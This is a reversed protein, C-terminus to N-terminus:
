QYIYKIIEKPVLGTIAQNNEIKYRIDSSSTNIEDQTLLYLLGFKNNKLDAINTTKTFNQLLMNDIDNNPRNVIVLHCFKDFENHRKWTNITNFSDVGILLCISHNLYDKRISILSDITYTTKNQKIERTDITTKQINKVVTKLMDLRVQKTFFTNNKCSSSYYPLFLLKSLGLKSIATKATNIHGFHIPDFGGGFIAIM